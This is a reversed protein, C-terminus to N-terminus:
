VTRAGRITLLAALRVTELPHSLADLLEGDSFQCLAGSALLVRELRLTVAVDWWDDPIPRVIQRGSRLPARIEVSVRRKHHSPSSLEVVYEARGYRCQPARVLVSLGAMRRTVVARCPRVEPELGVTEPGTPIVYDM